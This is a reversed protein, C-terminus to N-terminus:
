ANKKSHRGEIAQSARSLIKEIKKEFSFRNKNASGGVSIRVFNRKGSTDPTLRIWIKKHSMFLAAYLGLTMITFAFYILGVGPDRSVQLGTYEVGWYDVFKIKHGSQLITQPSDPLRKHIWRTFTKKGPEEFKIKVAPHVMQKKFREPTYLRGTGEQFFLAPSFDIITGKIGTDAIEFTGGFKLRLTSEQGGNSTVKLIFEGVADPIMGYSSQYFTIGKYKLPHNVEITKKLVERGGDFIVLESQFEQPTDSDTYYETNYWNCKITFGLPRIGYKKMKSKLVDRDIDLLKYVASMNGQSMEIVDLIRGREFKEAETLPGTGLLAFSATRGERLNLFGDFGFRAGVIAGIFILLISLHVIYVGFRTYGGKQSYLQVGDGETAEFVRYKAATLSNLIEDKATKFDSKVKLEKKVPLARIVNEKLPRLPTKVFRLTKPFRELTCVTLNISFLILLTIFWWSHYMDMFDFKLFLNYVTPATNDGFIKTLFQIAKAAEQPIITGIISTLALIILIVIALKVSAFFNWVKDSISTKEKEM